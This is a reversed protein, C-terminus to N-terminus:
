DVIEGALPQSNVTATLHSSRRNPPTTSTKSYVTLSGPSDHHLSFNAEGKDLQHHGHHDTEDYNKTGSLKKHRNKLSAPLHLQKTFLLCRDIKGYLRQQAIYTPSLPPM